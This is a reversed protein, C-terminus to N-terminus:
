VQKRARCGLALMAIRAERTIPWGHAGAERKALTVRHIGLLKAVETQTGLRKRAAKYATPTM